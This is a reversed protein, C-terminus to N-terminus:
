TKRCMKIQVGTTTHYIVSSQAWIFQVTLLREHM